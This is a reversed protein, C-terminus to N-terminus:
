DIRLMMRYWLLTFNVLVGSWFRNSVVIGGAGRFRSADSQCEDRQRRRGRRRRRRRRRHHAHRKVVADDRAMDEKVRRGGDDLSATWDEM